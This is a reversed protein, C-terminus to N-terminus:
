ARGDQAAHARATEPKALYLWGRVLISGWLCMRIISVVPSDLIPPDLGAGGMILNKLGGGLGGQFFFKQASHACYGVNVKDCIFPNFIQVIKLMKLNDPM